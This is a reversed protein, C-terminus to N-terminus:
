ATVKEYTSGMVHEGTLRRLEARKRALNAQIEDQLADLGRGDMAGFEMAAPREYSSRFDGIMGERHKLETNVKKQLRDLGTNSFNQKLYEGLTLGNERARTWLEEM